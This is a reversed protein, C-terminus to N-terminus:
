TVYMEYKPMGEELYVMFRVRKGDMLKRESECRLKKFDATELFLRLIELKEYLEKNGEGPTLLQKLVATHERKAMTEICHALDPFLEVGLM